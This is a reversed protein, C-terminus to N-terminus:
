VLITSQTTMEEELPDELGPVSGSDGASASPTKVVLAVQSAWPLIGLGNKKESETGNGLKTFHICEKIM